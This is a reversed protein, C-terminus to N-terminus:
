LRVKVFLSGYGNEEEQDSFERSRLVYAFGAEAYRFGVAFGSKWEGVFTEKSVEHSNQYLNGDLFANHAVLWGEVGTFVYISWRHEGASPSWGGETSLLSSITQVGFSDPLHLGARLTGGVRLGTTVNGLSAAGHPIFDVWEASAESFTLRVGRWYRLEIGPEAELQHEWGRPLDLDRVEHVWTQAQEGLSPPGISGLQVEFSELTPWGRRTLGRRQLTLGVYLWGAYPRDEELLEDTTINAPTYINQGIQLGFRSTRQDYGCNPLFRDIAQLFGPLSGDAHLYSLKIGQTYHRDTRVVMDNEEHVTFVPGQDFHATSQPWVGASVLCPLIVVVIVGLRKL